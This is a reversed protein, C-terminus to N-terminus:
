QERGEPEGVHVLLTREGHCCPCAAVIGRGDATLKPECGHEELADFMKRLAQAAQATM